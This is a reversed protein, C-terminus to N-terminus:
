SSVSSYYRKRRRRLMGDDDLRGTVRTLIRVTFPEETGITLWATVHPMPVGLQQLVGAFVDPGRSLKTFGHKTFGHEM